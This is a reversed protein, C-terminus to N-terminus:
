AHVFDNFEARSGSERPQSITLVDSNKTSLPRVVFIIDRLRASLRYGQISFNGAKM